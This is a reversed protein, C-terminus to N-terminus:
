TESDEKEKDEKKWGDNLNFSFLNRRTPTPFTGVGYVQESKSNLYKVARSHVFPLGHKRIVYANPTSHSQNEGATRGVTSFYSQLTDASKKSFVLQLLSLLAISKFLQIM